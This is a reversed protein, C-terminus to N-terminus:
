INLCVFVLAFLHLVPNSIRVATIIFLEIKQSMISHLGDFAVLIKPSCTPQSEVAQITNYALGCFKESMLCM